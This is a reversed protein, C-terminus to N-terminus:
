RISSVGDAKRVGEEKCKAEVKEAAARLLILKKEYSKFKPYEAFLDEAYNLPSKGFKDKKLPDAGNELLAQVVSPSINSATTAIHLPTERNTKSNRQQNVNVGARVLVEVMEKSKVEFLVNGGWSDQKTVDVGNGVEEKVKDVKDSRVFQYIMSVDGGLSRGCCVVYLFM